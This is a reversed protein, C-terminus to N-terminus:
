LVETGPPLIYVTKPHAGRETLKVCEDFYHQKEKALNQGLGILAEEFTCQQIFYMQLWAHVTADKLYLDWLEPHGDKVEAQREHSEIM